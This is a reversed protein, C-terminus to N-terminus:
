SLKAFLNPWFDHLSEPHPKKPLLTIFAENLKQFGRGNLTYLKDFSVCVNAKIMTWCSRIFEALFGNPDPVKGAPLSKVAM